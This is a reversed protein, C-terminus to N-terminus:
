ILVLYFGWEDECGLDQMYQLGAKEIETYAEYTLENLKEYVVIRQEPEVRQLLNWLLIADHEASSEIISSLITEMKGNFLYEDLLSSEILDSNSYYPVSVGSGNLVNM